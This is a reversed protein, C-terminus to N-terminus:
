WDRWATGLPGRVRDRLAALTAGLGLLFIAAAGFAVFLLGQQVLVFLARLGSAGVAAAGAVVLVRSRAAIGVLVATVAEAVLWATYAWGADGFAQATTTGMLLVAGAATAVMAVLGRALVLGVGLLALGPAAVYWQPNTAGLYRAAFYSALSAAVVAAQDLAALPRLRAETVLLGALALVPVGALLAEPAGRRAADTLAFGALATAASGALGLAVHAELAPRAGIWALRGVVYVCVALGALALLVWVSPADAGNLALALGTGGGLVALGLGVPSREVAAAAYGVAAYALLARGALGVDPGALALVVLGVAGAVVYPPWAWRLGLTARLGLGLGGLLVPLPSLLLALAAQSAPRPPLVARGLWYWAVAFAGGALLLWAPTRVRWATLALLATATLLAAAAGSAPLQVFLVPVLAQVAMGARLGARLGDDRAVEAALGYAAALVLLEAAAPGYGQGLTANAALVALSGAAAAVLLAPTWGTLWRYLVYGAGVVALTAVTAWSAPPESQLGAAVALVLGAHAFLV